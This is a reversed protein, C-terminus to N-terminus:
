NKKKILEAITDNPQGSKKQYFYVDHGKNDKQDLSAGSEVLYRVLNENGRYVAMMLLSVGNKTRSNIDVGGSQMYNKISDYDLNGTALIIDSADKTQARDYYKEPPKPKEATDSFKFDKGAAKIKQIFDNYTTKVTEYNSVEEDSNAGYLDSGSTRPMAKEANVGTSKKSNKYYEYEYKKWVKPLSIAEVLNNDADYHYVTKEEPTGDLHEVLSTALMSNNNYTCSARKVLEHKQNFYMLEVLNGKADLKIKEFSGGPANNEMRKEYEATNNKADYKCFYRYQPVNAASYYISEVLNENKDYRNELRGTVADFKDYEVFEFLRGKINYNYKVKSVINEQADLISSEVINGNEDFKYIVRKKKQDTKSYYLYETARAVFNAKIVSKDFLLDKAFSSVTGSVIAVIALCIISATKMLLGLRRNWSM